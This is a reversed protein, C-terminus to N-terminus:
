EGFLCCMQKGTHTTIMWVRLSTQIQEQLNVNLPVNWRLCTLSAAIHAPLVDGHIRRWWHLFHPRFPADSTVGLDGPSSVSVEQQGQGWM